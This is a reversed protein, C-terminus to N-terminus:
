LLHFFCEQEQEESSCQCNRCLGVDCGMVQLVITEVATKMMSGTFGGFHFLFDLGDRSPRCAKSDIVGDSTDVFIAKGAGEVATFYGGLAILAAFSTRQCERRSPTHFHGVALGDGQGGTGVGNRCGGVVALTGGFSM